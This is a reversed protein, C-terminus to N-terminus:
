ISVLASAAAAPRPGGTKPKGREPKHRITQATKLGERIAGRALDTSRPFFQPFSHIIPRLLDDPLSHLEALAADVADLAERVGLHDFRPDIEEPDSAFFSIAALDADYVLKKLQEETLEWRIRLDRKLETSLHSNSSPVVYRGDIHTVAESGEPVM